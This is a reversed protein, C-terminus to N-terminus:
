TCRFNALEAQSSEGQCFDGMHKLTVLSRSTSSQSDAGDKGLLTIINAAALCLDDVLESYSESYRSAALILRPLVWKYFPVSQAPFLPIENVLSPLASIQRHLIALTYGAQEISAQSPIASSPLLICAEILVELLRRYRHVDAPSPPGDSSKLGEKILQQLLDRGAQSSEAPGLEVLGQAMGNDLHLAFIQQLHQCEVLMPFRSPPVFHLHVSASEGKRLLSGM